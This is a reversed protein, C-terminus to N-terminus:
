TKFDELSPSQVAESPLRNQYNVTRVPLFIKRINLRFKEQKLKHENGTRRRGYRGTFLKAGDEQFGGWSVPFSSDPGGLCMEEGPQVLGSGGAERRPTLTRARSWRPPKRSFKNWYIDTKYQPGLVPGCIHDLSHWSFSIVASPFIM